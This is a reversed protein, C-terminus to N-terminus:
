YFCFKSLLFFVFIFCFEGEIHSYDSNQSVKEPDMGFGSFLFRVLKEAYHLFKACFFMAIVFMVKILLCVASLIFSLIGKAKLNRLSKKFNNHQQLPMIIIISFLEDHIFLSVYHICFFDVSFCRACTFNLTNIIGNHLGLFFYM